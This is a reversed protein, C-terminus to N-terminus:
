TIIVEEKLDMLEEALLIITGKYNRTMGPGPVSVYTGYKEKMLPLKLSNYGASVLEAMKCEAFGLFDHLELDPSPSDIDYVEFRLLQDQEFTYDM